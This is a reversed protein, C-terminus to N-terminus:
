QSSQEGEVAPYFKFWAFDFNCGPLFIFSVTKLGTINELPFEREVYDKSHEFEVIQKIEAGSAAFSVHITNRDIPSRGCIKLKSLGYAFDMKDFVLVVNNGIAEIGDKGVRYTDGYISSYDLASLREYAKQPRTFCFGKIHVNNRLLFSITTVGKLRKNLRFTVEQYAYLNEKKQYIVDAVLYSEEKGPVGEWIQIPVPESGFCFLPMTITDSGYDGFYINDFIIITEGDRAASVGREFGNGVEGISRSYLSGSIFKYPNLFAKGMGSVKFDLMSIINTHDRGNNAMARVYFIGDGFAKIKAHGPGAEVIQAIGSDVGAANTVRWSIDKYTANEPYVKLELMVETLNEDQLTGQKSIIELKRIPIEPNNESKANEERASIGERVPSEKAVLNLVAAPLGESTVEVKIDGPNTKAALMALLKGGFLRKSTGKYSEFDTSDGNDLGVLRAAGTVNVHVRNNANHVPNGDKDTMSIEIFIMDQGDALLETKDPTLAIRAADSFSKQIDEAIINGNEDYAVARLEGRKYPLQWKAVLEKGHKHDIERRGQSIGNAFLEVSPANSCVCVDILQGENFDWYPFVHVMPTKKYDTWAAQYIYFADKKFGATDIQGFYSNKTHYPTPEGIYDFGSWVFMGASFPTDRDDIICKETSKAGWSTTSNGLSSCQLDDDSLISQSLPFHYIGRSQVVSGTESGYIIWDPYKKHHDEYYKEAYNYGVLKIIDACKQTNEWPMYNSGFTVYANHNPDHKEVLEKLLRTVKLGREDAHTDYIENGISWMIVCPHNRDRRIWSAVDKEVWDGFFRAYDYSTKPREWMDFAEDNILIGMEDALELLEVAPMNHSTRIANVGMEKLILLQRKIATRNIAAGLAGLDHHQCVGHIKVKEDNLFFGENADFRITRFGFRNYEVDIVKGDRLLESKLTYLAPNDLRWLDPDIVKLELTTAAGENAALMKGDSDIITHRIICANSLDFENERDICEIESQVRVTWCAEKKVTSIYIGDSAFHLEPVAKLWVNRYIGAGSYWRSNPIQLVVRVLLENEGPKLADTIDIEFTSYGYKWEGVLSGNLWITSDMYIGEFRLKYGTRDFEKTRENLSTRGIDFRKRYWGECSEFFYQTDYIMWDHPIDVPQWLEDRHIIDEIKTGLAQKTFEWGDNFLISVGM